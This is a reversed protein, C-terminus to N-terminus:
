AKVTPNMWKYGLSSSLSSSISCCCLVIVAILAIIVWQGTAAGTTKISTAGRPSTYGFSAEGDM